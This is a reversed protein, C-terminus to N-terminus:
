ASSHLDCEELHKMKCKGCIMRQSSTKEPDFHLKLQHALIYEWDSGVYEIKTATSLHWHLGYYGILSLAKQSLPSVRTSLSKEKQSIALNIDELGPHITYAWSMQYCDKTVPIIKLPRRNSPEDWGCLLTSLIRHLQPLNVWQHIVKINCTLIGPNLMINEFSIGAKTVTTTIVVLKLLRTIASECLSEPGSDKELFTMNLISLEAYQIYREDICKLCLEAYSCECTDKVASAESHENTFVLARKTPQYSKSSKSAHTHASCYYQRHILNPDFSLGGEHCTCHGHNNRPVEDPDLPTSKTMPPSGDCSSQSQKLSSTDM